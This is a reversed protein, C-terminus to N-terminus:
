IHELTDLKLIAGTRRRVVGGSRNVLRRPVLVFLDYGFGNRNLLDVSHHCTSFDEM